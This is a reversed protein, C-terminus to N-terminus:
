AAKRSGNMLAATTNLADAICAAVEAATLSKATHIISHKM